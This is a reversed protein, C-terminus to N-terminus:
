DSEKEPPRHDECARFKRRFIPLRGFMRHWGWYVVVAPKRCFHCPRASGNTDKLVEGQGDIHDLIEDATIGRTKLEEQIVVLAEPEIDNRYVTMRDLLDATEASRVNHRVRNIDFKMGSGQTSWKREENERSCDLKPVM